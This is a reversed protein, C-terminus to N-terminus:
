SPCVNRYSSTFRRALAGLAHLSDESSNKMGRSAGAGVLALSSLPFRSKTASPSDRSLSDREEDRETRGRLERTRLNRTLGADTACDQNMSGAVRERDASRVTPHRLRTVRVLGRRCQEM